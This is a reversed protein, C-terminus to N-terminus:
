QTQRAELVQAFREVYLASDVQEYWWVRLALQGQGLDVSQWLANAQTADGLLAKAEGLLQRTAREAPALHYARELWTDAQQYEGQSLAIQGLRRLATVNTPDQQLVAEYHTVWRATDVLPSRRVADQIPWTPWEYLALEQRTQAVTTQNVLWRSASGPLTVLLLLAILPTLAGLWQGHKRQPAHDIPPTAGPEAAVMADDAPVCGILLAAPLFLLPVFYGAYLEADTLGYILLAIQAALAGGGYLRHTADAQRLWVIGLGLASIMIGMLGILGPLGQEIAVQLYLSHAHNLYPVHLLYVYTALVLPTSGLGSGTFWYDQILPLSEHWVALRSNITSELYTGAVPRLLAEHVAPSLTIGVLLGIAVITGGGMLWDMLSPQALLRELRAAPRVTPRQGRQQELRRRRIARAQQWNLRKNREADTRWHLYAAIGVGSLLGLWAGRSFTLLLAASGLVVGFLSWYKTPLQPTPWSQWLTVLAIPLLGILAGAFLNEHLRLGEGWAPQNAQLWNTLAPLLTFDAATASQWNHALLFLLGLGGALLGSDLGVATFSQRTRDSQPRSRQGNWHLLAILLLGVSLLSFRGLAVSRDYAAWVGM